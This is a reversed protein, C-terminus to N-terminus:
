LSRAFGVAGLVGVLNAALFVELCQGADDVRTATGAAIVLLCGIDGHGLLMGSDASLVLWEGARIITLITVRLVGDAAQGDVLRVLFVLSQEAIKVVLISGYLIDDDGATINYTLFVYAADKAFEFETCDFVAEDGSM